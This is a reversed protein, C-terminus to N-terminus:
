GAPLMRDAAVTRRVNRGDGAGDRPRCRPSLHRRSDRRRGGAALEALATAKQMAEIAADLRDKSASSIAVLELRQIELLKLAQALAQEQAGNHRQAIAQLETISKEADGSAQKAAVLGRVFIPLARLSVMAAQIFPSLPAGGEASATSQRFEALAVPYWFSHLAAM